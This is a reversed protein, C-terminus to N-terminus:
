VSEAIFLMIPSEASFPGQTWNGHVDIIRFGAKALSQLYETENRFRLQSKVVLDENTSIFKNHASFQVIGGNVEVDDLWCEMLGYDTNIQEFTRERTWHRWSQALPNRSEFSLYGGTRLASHLSKLTANWEADDLFVQAVNGTMLALDAQDIELNSSDGCIWLVREAGPKNKAISLMAISPDIGIVERDESALECTLLGTGCGLDIIRRASVSKALNLYFDTDAGRPNNRDYLEVLRPETYHFDLHVM